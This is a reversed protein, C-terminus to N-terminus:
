GGNLVQRVRHLLANRTFPKQLFAMSNDAVGHIM